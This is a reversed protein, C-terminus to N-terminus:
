RGTHLAAVFRYTDDAEGKDTPRRLEVLALPRDVPEGTDPDFAIYGSIGRVRSRGNTQELMALVMRATVQRTGYVGVANRAAKGITYTADHGLMAQGSALASPPGGVEDRYARAFDAFPGNRAAGYVEESIRPHTFATYYVTLRSYKWREALTSLETRHRDGGTDFYVGLASSGSLM